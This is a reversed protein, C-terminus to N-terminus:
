TKDEPNLVFVVANKDMLTLPGHMLEGAAIGEAHV